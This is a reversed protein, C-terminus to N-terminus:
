QRYFTLTKGTRQSRSVRGNLFVFYMQTFTFLLHVLPTVAAIVDVCRLTLEMEFVRGFTLGELIMAGVGFGSVGCINTM